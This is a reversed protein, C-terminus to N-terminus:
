LDNSCDTLQASCEISLCDDCEAYVGVDYTILDSCEYPCVAAACSLLDDYVVSDYCPPLGDTIAWACSEACYPPEGCNGGCGDSCDCDYSGGNGGAGEGASVSGKCASFLAAFAGGLVASWRLTRTKM